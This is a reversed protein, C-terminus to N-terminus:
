YHTFILILEFALFTSVETQWHSVSDKLDKIQKLSDQRFQEFGSTVHELEVQLM